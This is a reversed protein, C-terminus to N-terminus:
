CRGQFCFFDDMMARIAAIDNKRIASWVKEDITEM